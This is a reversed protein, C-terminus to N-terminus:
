SGGGLSHTIYSKVNVADQAIDDLTQGVFQIQISVFILVGALVLSSFADGRRHAATVSQQEDRAYLSSIVRYLYNTEVVTMILVVGIAFWAQQASLGSLLTLLDQLM